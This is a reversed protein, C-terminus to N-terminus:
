KIGVIMSDPGVLHEVYSDKFGTEAMWGRCPV